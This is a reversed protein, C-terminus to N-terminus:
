RTRTPRLLNAMRGEDMLMVGRAPSVVLVLGFIRLFSMGVLVEAHTPSLLIPGSRSRRQFRVRGMTTEMAIQRGDALTVTTTATPSRALGLARCLIAPMQVFGSFGTDVISDFSHRSGGEDEMQIQVRPDGQPDFRGHTLM